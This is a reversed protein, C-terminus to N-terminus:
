HDEQKAANVSTGKGGKSIIFLIGKVILIALLLVVLAGRACGAIIVGDVKSACDENSVTYSANAPILNSVHLVQCTYVTSRDIAQSVKLCSIVEYLGEPTKTQQENTLGTLLEMDNKHWSLNFDKPYFASTRCQLSLPACTVGESPLSLIKLPAPTAYVVLQVGTTEGVTHYQYKTVCYYTGADPVTVNLLHLYAGGRKVSFLKRNDEQLFTKNGDRWWYVIVNSHNLNFSFPCRLIVNTGRLAKKEIIDPTANGSTGVAVPYMIGLFCIGCLVGNMVMDDNVIRCILRQSQSRFPSLTTSYIGLTIWHLDTLDPLVHSTLQLTFFHIGKPTLDVSQSQALPTATKGYAEVPVVEIRRMPPQVAYESQRAFHLLSLISIAALLQIDLLCQPDDDVASNFESMIQLRMPWCEVM